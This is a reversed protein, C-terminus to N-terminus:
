VIYLLMELISFIWKRACTAASSTWQDNSQCQRSSSGQLIYGTNCTYVLRDDLNRGTPYSVAGNAPAPQVPCVIVSFQLMVIHIFWKIHGKIILGGLMIYRIVGYSEWFWRTGTTTLKGSTTYAVINWYNMIYKMTLMTSVDNYNEVTLTPKYTAGRCRHCSWRLPAVRSFIKYFSFWQIQLINKKWYFHAFLILRFRFRIIDRSFKLLM